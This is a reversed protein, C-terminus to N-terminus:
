RREVEAGAIEGPAKAKLRIRVLVRRQVRLNSPEEEGVAKTPHEVDDLEGRQQDEHQCGVGAEGIERTERGDQGPVSKQGMQEGQSAVPQRETSADNRQAREGYRKQDSEVAASIRQDIEIGKADEGGERERL